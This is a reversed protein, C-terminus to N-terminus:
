LTTHPGLQHQKEGRIGRITFAPNHPKYAMKSVKPNYNCPAPTLESKSWLTTGRHRLSHTYAPATRLVLRDAKERNYQNPGPEKDSGRKAISFTGRKGIITFSPTSPKTQPRIGVLTGINYTAPTPWKQDFRLRHTYNDPSHYWEKHWAKYGGGSREHLRMGFTWEPANTESLPKNRPSYSWPGPGEMDIRLPPRSNMCEDWTAVKQHSREEYYVSPGKSIAARKRASLVVTSMKMVSTPLKGSLHTSVRGDDGRSKGNRSRPSKSVQPVHVANPNYLQNQHGTVMMNLLTDENKESGRSILNQDSSSIKPLSPATKDHVGHDQLYEEIRANDVVDEDDLKSLNEETLPLKAEVPETARPSEDKVTNPSDEACPKGKDRGDNIPTNNELETTEQIIEKAEGTDAENKNENGEQADKVAEEGQDAPPSDAVVDDGKIVQEDPIVGERGEQENVNQEPQVESEPKAAEDNQKIEAATDADSKEANQKGAQQEAVEDASAAVVEGGGDGAETEGGAVNEGQAAADGEEKVDGSGNDTSEKKKSDQKEEPQNKGEKATEEVVAVGNDNATEQKQDEGNDVNIAGNVQGEEVQQDAM